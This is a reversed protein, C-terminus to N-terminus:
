FADINIIIVFITILIIPQYLASRIFFFFM